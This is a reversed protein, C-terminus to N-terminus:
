RRHEHIHYPLPPDDHLAVPADVIPTLSPTPQPAPKSRTPPPQDASNKIAGILARLEDQIQRATENARVCDLAQAATELDFLVDETSPHPLLLADDLAAVADSSLNLQVLRDRLVAIRDWQAQSIQGYTGYLWDSAALGWLAILSFVFLLVAIVVFTVTRRPRGDVPALPDAM